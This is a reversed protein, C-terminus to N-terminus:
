WLLPILKKTGKSYDLYGPLDRALLKEEVAIRRRYAGALLGTVASVTPLSGSAVTCGAWTLISGLYGPHRILRYPGDTIVQQEPTTGLTRSYSGELTRMSWLRVGLGTAEIALGLPGASRPLRLMRIPRLIPPLVVAVAYAGLIRRTTGQDDTSDELSSATGRQRVVSELVLFGALGTYGAMLWGVGPGVYDRRCISGPRM